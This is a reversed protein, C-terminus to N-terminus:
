RHNLIRVQRQVAAQAEGSVGQLRHPLGRHRLGRLRRRTRGRQASASRGAPARVEQAPAGGAARGRRHAEAGVEGDAVVRNVLGKAKAEEAGAAFAKEGAGRLVICRVGDDGELERMVEGLRMWMAFSLANLKEPNNLVVTAIAGDREFYVPDSM